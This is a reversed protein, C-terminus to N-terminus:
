VKTLAQRADRIRQETKVHADREALMESELQGILGAQEAIKASADKLATKL